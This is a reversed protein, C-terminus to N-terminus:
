FNTDYSLGFGGVWFQDTSGTQDVSGTQDTSGAQDASGTQDTNWDFSTPEFAPFPDFEFSIPPLPPVVDPHHEAKRLKEKYKRRIKKIKYWRKTYQEEKMHLAYNGLSVVVESKFHNLKSRVNKPVHEQIDKEVIDTIENICTMWNKWAKMRERELEQAEQQIRRPEETSPEWQSM